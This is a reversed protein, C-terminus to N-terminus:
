VLYKVQTTSRSAGTACSRASPPMERAAAAHHQCAEAGSRGAEEEPRRLRNSCAVIRRWGISSSRAANGNRRRSCEPAQRRTACPHSSVLSRVCSGDAHTGWCISPWPAVPTMCCARAGHHGCDTRCGSPPLPEAGHQATEAKKVAQVASAPLAGVGASASPPAASAVQSAEVSSQRGVEAEQRGDGHAVCVMSLGSPLNATHGIGPVLVSRTQRAPPNAPPWGGQQHSASMRQPAHPHHSHELQQSHLANRASWTLLLGAAVILRKELQSQSCM